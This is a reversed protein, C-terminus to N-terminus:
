RDLRLFGTKRFGFTCLCLISVERIKEINERVSQMRFLWKERKKYKHSDRRLPILKFLLPISFARQWFIAVCIAYDFFKVFEDGLAKPSKQIDIKVLAQVPQSSEKSTEYSLFLRLRKRSLTMASPLVYARMLM